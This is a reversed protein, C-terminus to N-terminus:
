SPLGSQSYEALFSRGADTIEVVRGFPSPKTVFGRDYLSQAQRRKITSTPVGVRTEAGVTARGHYAVCRLARRQDQTLRIM